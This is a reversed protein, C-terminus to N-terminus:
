WSMVVLTTMADGGAEGSAGDTGEEGDGQGDTCM